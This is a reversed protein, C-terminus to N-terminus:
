FMGSSISLRTFCYWNYKGNRGKESAGRSETKPYRFSNIQVLGSGNITSLVTGSSSPDQPTNQTPYSPQYLSPPTSGNHNPSAQSATSPNNVHPSPNEIRRRKPTNQLFQEGVNGNISLVNTVVTNVFASSEKWHTLYFDKQRSLEHV